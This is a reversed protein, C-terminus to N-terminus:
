KKSRREEHEAPGILMTDQLVDLWRSFKKDIKGTKVFHLGFM